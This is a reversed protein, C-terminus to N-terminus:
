PNVKIDRINSYFYFGNTYNVKIRYFPSTGVAAGADNVLTINEDTIIKVDITTNDFTYTGCRQVTYNAFNPNLNKQWFLTVIGGSSMLSDIQLYKYAFITFYLPPFNNGVDSKIRILSDNYAITVGAAAIGNSGTFSSAPFVEGEGKELSFKVSIGHPPNAYPLYLPNKYKDLVKVQLLSNITVGQLSHMTDSSVYQFVAPISLSNAKASFGITGNTVSPVYAQATKSGVLTDLTWVSSSIGLSDTLVVSPQLKGNSSTFYVPVNPVMNGYSDSVKIVLPLSLASGVTGIQNNGSELEIKTASSSSASLSFKVPSGKLGYVSANIRVSDAKAGLTVYTQAYGDGDTVAITDSFSANNNEVSFEVNIGRVPRGNLALVRVKLPNPLKINVIGSQYGGSVISIRDPEEKGTGAITDRDICSISSVSAFICLIFIITFFKM